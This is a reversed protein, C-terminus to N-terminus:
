EVKPEGFWHDEWVKPFRQLTAVCQVQDLRGAVDRVIKQALRLMMEPPFCLSAIYIHTADSVDLAFLDGALFEVGSGSSGEAAGTRCETAPIPVASCRISLQRVRRAASELTTWCEFAAAHRAPALEVGVVRHAHPLEMYAQVVLKGAGSGLDYFSIPGQTLGGQAGMYAFLQRAGVETVEGYTFPGAGDDATIDDVTAAQASWRRLVRSAASRCASEESSAPAPEIMPPSTIAEAPVLLTAAVVRLLEHKLVRLRQMAVIPADGCFVRQKREGRAQLAASRIRPWSPSIALGDSWTSIQILALALMSRKWSRVQERMTLYAQIQRPKGHLSIGM